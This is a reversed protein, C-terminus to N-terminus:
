AAVEAFNTLATARVATTLGPHEAIEVRYVVVPADPTGYEFRELVNVARGAYFNAPDSLTATAIM